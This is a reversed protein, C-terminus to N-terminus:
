RFIKEHELCTMNPYMTHKSTTLDWRDGSDGQLYMEEIWTHCAEPVSAAGSILM